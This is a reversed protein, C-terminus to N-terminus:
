KELRRKEDDLYKKLRGFVAELDKVLPEIPTLEKNEAFQEIKQALVQLTSAGLNGASSKLSHVAQEVTEFDGSQAGTIASEIRKPAHKLFSEIMKLVLQDGGIKRLKEIRSNDLYELETM